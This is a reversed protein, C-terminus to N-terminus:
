ECIKFNTLTKCQQINVRNTASACPLEGKLLWGTCSCIINYYKIYNKKSSHQVYIIAYKNYFKTLLSNMM